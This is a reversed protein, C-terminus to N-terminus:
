IGPQFLITQNTKLVALFDASESCTGDIHDGFEDWDRQLIGGQLGAHGRTTQPTLGAQFPSGSVFRVERGERSQQM